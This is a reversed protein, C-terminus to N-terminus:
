LIYSGLLKEQLMVKHFKESGTDYFNTSYMLRLLIGDDCKFKWRQNANQSVSPSVATLSYNSLNLKTTSNSNSETLWLVIIKGDLSSPMSFVRNSNKLDLVVNNNSKHYNIELLVQNTTPIYKTLKFSRNRWHTFVICLTSEASYPPSFTVEYGNINLGKEKIKAVILSLLTPM